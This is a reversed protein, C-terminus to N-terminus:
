QFKHDFIERSSVLKKKGWFEPQGKIQKPLQAAIDSEKCSRQQHLVANFFGLSKVPFFGELKFVWTTMTYHVGFKAFSKFNLTNSQRQKIDRTDRDKFSPYVQMFSM